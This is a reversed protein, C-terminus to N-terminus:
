DGRWALEVREGNAKHSPDLTHLELTAGEEALSVHVWGNPDTKVFPYATPPLNVLHLDDWKKTQWHHTHGFIYAKVQRRPVLVEFLADTDTLGTGAGGKVPQHHGLVIAPKDRHADLAAALWEIQAEGLRGPTVNTENLSDLVFWNAREAEVISVQKNAVPRAEEDDSAQLAAAAWFHERQDHNGLALHVPVGSARLPALLEVLVGYDGRKGELFACDGDVLVGAPLAKAALAERVVRSLNEAMNAGLHVTDREESVHTDSFLAFSHPDVDTAAGWLTRPALSAAGAAVAGALFRRRSFAPLHIPM